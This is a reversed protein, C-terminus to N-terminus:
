IRRARRRFEDYHSERPHMRALGIDLSTLADKGLIRAADNGGDRPCVSPTRMARWNDRTILNVFPLMEAVAAFAYSASDGLPIIPRPRAAARMSKEAIERLTLVEPGGLSLASNQLEGDELANVLARALDEVAIPQFKAHACPLPVVPAFRALNAFMTTLSDGRGFVVSPRAIVHRMAGADRVISEGKAKSRLYASAAGPAAGLASVQAFLRVRGRCESVLRRVFEGHVREFDGPRREHLMGVLNVVAEAGNLAKSVSSASDPDLGTVRAGPLIILNEKARERDRAPVVVQHGRACLAAAVRRGVFGGGGFVVVRM